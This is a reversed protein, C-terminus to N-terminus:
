HRHNNKNHILPLCGCYLSDEVYHWKIIALSIFNLLILIWEYCSKWKLIGLCQIICIRIKHICMCVYYIGSIGNDVSLTPIPTATLKSSTSLSHTFLKLIENNSIFCVYNRVYSVRYQTGSKLNINDKAAHVKCHRWFIICM